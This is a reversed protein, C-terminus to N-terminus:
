KRRNMMMMSPYLRLYLEVAMPNKGYLPDLRNDAHYFTLQSGGALAAIRIIRKMQYNKSPGM